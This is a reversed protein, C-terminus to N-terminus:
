WFGLEGDSPGVHLDCTKYIFSLYSGRSQKTSEGDYIFYALDVVLFLLIWEQSWRLLVCPHGECM